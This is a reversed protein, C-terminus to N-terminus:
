VCTYGGDVPMILGTTYSSEDSALYVAAGKLEKPNGYRGLPVTAKMYATFEASSLTEETLETGFYGPCICNATINYKAWEAATARTFNVVAGKAAHYAASPLATNGVLGYMSAINIIRGYNNKIMSKGVERTMLFVGTQDLVIDKNWDQLSTEELPVTGGAGANNILIDIKGYEAVVSEVAQTINAEDTIDCKVALCKVGLAELDKKVEDLKEIRRAFIALDAGQEALAKAMHVGLGSSAGTVLAVKGSLDFM